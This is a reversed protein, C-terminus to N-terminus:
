NHHFFGLNRCRVTKAFFRPKPTPKPYRLLVLRWGPPGAENERQGGGPEQSPASSGKGKNELVLVVVM